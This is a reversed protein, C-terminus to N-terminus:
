VFSDAKEKYRMRPIHQAKDYNQIQDTATNKNQICHFEKALKCIEAASKRHNKYDEYLYDNILYMSLNLADPLHKVAGVPHESIFSRNITNAAATRCCDSFIVYQDPTILLDSRYEFNNNLDKKLITKSGTARDFCYVDRFNICKRKTEIGQNNFNHITKFRNILSYVTSDEKSYVGKSENYIIQTKYDSSAGGYYYTGDIMYDENINRLSYFIENGLKEDEKLSVELKFNTGYLSDQIIAKLCDNSFTILGKEAALIVKYVIKNKFDTDQISKTINDLWQYLKKTNSNLNMNSKLLNKLDEEAIEIYSSANQDKLTKGM